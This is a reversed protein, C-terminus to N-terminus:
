KGLLRNFNVTDILTDAKGWSYYYTETDVWFPYEGQGVLKMKAELNDIRVSDCNLKDLQRNTDWLFWMCGCFLFLILIWIIKTSM